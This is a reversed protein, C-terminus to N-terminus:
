YRQHVAGDLGTPKEMWNDYDWNALVSHLVIQKRSDQMVIEDAFVGFDHL